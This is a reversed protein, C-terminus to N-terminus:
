WLSPLPPMAPADLLDPLGQASDFSPRLWRTQEHGWAWLTTALGPSSTPVLLGSLLGMFTLHVADYDRAVSSWTPAVGHDIGGSSLLHADPGPHKRPDSYQRALQHWDDASRVEFVRAAPSVTLHTQHVPYSPDTDWGYVLDAHAGSRVSPAHGAPLLTSTTFGKRPKQAYVEWPHLPGIPPKLDRPQIAQDSVLVQATRDLPALWWHNRPDSLVEHAFDQLPKAQRLVRRRVETASPSALWPTLDSVAAAALVTATPPDAVDDVDLGAQHALVFVAAAVPCHLLDEAAMTYTVGPTDLASRRDAAPDAM